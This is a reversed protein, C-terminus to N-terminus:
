EEVGDKPLDPSSQRLDNDADIRFKISGSPDVVAAPDHGIPAEPFSSLFLVEFVGFMAHLVTLATARTPTTRSGPRSAHVATNRCDKIINAINGLGEQGLAGKSRELLPGLPLSAIDSAGEPEKAILHHQLVTELIRGCLGIMAGYCQEKLCGRLEILSSELDKRYALSQPVRAHTAEILQLVREIEHRHESAKMVESLSIGLVDNLKLVVPNARLRLNTFESSFPDRAVVSAEVLHAGVLATVVTWLMENVPRAPRAIWGSAPRHRVSPDPDDPLLLNLGLRGAVEKVTGPRDRIEKLVRAALYHDM